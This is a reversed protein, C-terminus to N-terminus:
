KSSLGDIYKNVTKEIKIAAYLALDVEGSIKPHQESHRTLIRIIKNSQKL